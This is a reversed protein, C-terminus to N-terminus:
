DIKQMLGDKTFNLEYFENKRLFDISLNLIIKNPKFIIINRLLKKLGQNFSIMKIKDLFYKKIFFVKKLRVKKNKGSGIMSGTFPTGFMFWKNRIRRVAIIEDSLVEYFKRKNGMSKKSIENAITTKGSGSKGIFLLGNNKRSEKSKGSEIGCAHVFFGNNKLLLDSYIIRLFSDLSYISEISDYSVCYHSKNRVLFGRYRAKLVKLFEKSLRKKFRIKVYINAIDIIYYLM